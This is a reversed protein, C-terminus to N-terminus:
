LYTQIFFQRGIIVHLLFSEDLCTTNIIYVSQFSKKVAAVKFTQSINRELFLLFTQLISQHTHTKKM